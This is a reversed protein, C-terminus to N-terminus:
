EIIKQYEDDTIYLARKRRGTAKRGAGERHGGWQRKIKDGVSINSSATNGIAEDLRSMQGADEFFYKM